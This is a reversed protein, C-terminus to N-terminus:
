KLFSFIDYGGMIWRYVETPSLNDEVCMRPLEYRDKDVILFGTEATFAGKYHTSVVDKIEDNYYDKTGFPYAFWVPEYNLKEMIRNKDSVVEDNLNQSDLKTLDHHNVTHGGISMGCDVLKKAGLWDLTNREGVRLQEKVFSEQEAQGVVDLLGSNIFFIGKLDNAVMVPLCVDVWSQYGDDFTLLINVRDERLNGVIFDDPTIFHCTHSLKHILDSFEDNDPVDHFCLVRVLPGKKRMVFRLVGALGFVSILLILFNRIQHKM